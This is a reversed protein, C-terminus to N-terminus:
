LSSNDIVAWQLKITFFYIKINEGVRVERKERREGLPQPDHDLPEITTTWRSSKIKHTQTWPNPNTSWRSSRRPWWSPRHPDKISTTTTPITTASPPYSQQTLFSLSLSVLFSLPHFFLFLFPIFFLLSIINFHLQFFFISNKINLTNYLSINFKIFHKKLISFALIKLIRSTFVRINKNSKKYIEWKQSLSLISFVFCVFCVFLVM